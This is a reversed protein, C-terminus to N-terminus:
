TRNFERIHENIRCCVHIPNIKKFNLNQCTTTKFTFHDLLNKPNLICNTLSNPMPVLITSYFSHLLTKQLNTKFLLDCIVLSFSPCLQGLSKILKSLIQLTNIQINRNEAFLQEDLDLTTKDSSVVAELSSSYLQYSKELTSKEDILLNQSSQDDQQQQQEEQNLHFKVSSSDPSHSL